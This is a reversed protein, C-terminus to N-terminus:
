NGSNLFNEIMIWQCSCYWIRSQSNWTRCRSGGKQYCGAQANYGDHTWLIFAMKATSLGSTKIGINSTIDIPLIHHLHNTFGREQALLGLLIFHIHLSEEGFGISWVNWQIGSQYRSLVSFYWTCRSKSNSDLLWNSQFFNWM